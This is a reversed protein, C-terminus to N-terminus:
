YYYYFYTKLQIHGSFQILYIPKINSMLYNIKKTM